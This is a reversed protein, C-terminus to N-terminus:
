TVESIYKPLVKKFKDIVDSLKAYAAGGSANKHGGGKFHNRAIEQVSIDGKSRLSLKVITPQETIFAAVEIGQVMLIYNVIGETDGRAIEFDAYDKRTLHIIGTKYEPLLEFRNALCHGLLKLNKEKLSNFIKDQIFYDDAGYNKLRSAVAYTRPNTSYKFSGTDTILGIFLTESIRKDMHQLEGLDEIFQFILECTSSATPDSFMYDTFDEPDLHHDILIKKARSEAIIPGMKDVRDLGNFDLCYIIEAQKIAEIAKDPTFDYIISNEIDKVFSFIPPYESPFIVKVSHHFKELFYKLAWSSGLADGDPNRHSIIVIDKPSSLLTRIEKIEEM